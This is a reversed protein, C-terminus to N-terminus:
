RSFAVPVFPELLQLDFQDEGVARDIREFAFNVRRVPLDALGGARQSHLGEKGIRVIRKTGPFERAHPHLEIQLVVRQEHRLAGNGFQLAAVLHRHHVRVVLDMDLRHLHALPAAIQPDDFLSKCAPWRTTTSPM